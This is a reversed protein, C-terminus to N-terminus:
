RDARECEVLTNDHLRLVPDISGSSDRQYGGALSTAVALDMVLAERYVIRDRMRMQETSLIGGLPDNVHADVGANYILVDCGKFSRMVKPLESLWDNVGAGPGVSTAGFSYHTIFSLGLRAIIDDTGDGYHRDLDLIGIRRAGEEKAIVASLALFNFTCFGSGYGFHAHHAGSTPSFAPERSYLAALTAAVMSGCVWPLAEAVAPSTNGFGNSKKCELVGKVYSPDHVKAIMEVTAPEFSCVEFPVRTKKWSEIVKAPKQASPSFSENDSVSQRSDYFVRIVEVEEVEVTYSRATVASTL